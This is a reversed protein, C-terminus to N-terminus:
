ILHVHYLSSSLEIEEQEPNASSAADADYLLLLVSLMVLMVGLRHDICGTGAASLLSLSQAGPM